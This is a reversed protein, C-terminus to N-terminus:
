ISCLVLLISAEYRGVLYRGVKSLATRDSFYICVDVDVYFLYTCLCHKMETCGGEGVGPGGDMKGLARASSFGRKPGVKQHTVCSTFYVFPIASSYLTLNDFVRRSFIEGRYSALDPKKKGKM